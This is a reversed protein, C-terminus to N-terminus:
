STDRMRDKGDGATNEKHSLIHEGKQSFDVSLPRSWSISPTQSMAHGCSRNRVMNQTKSVIVEFIKTDAVGFM